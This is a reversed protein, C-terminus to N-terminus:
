ARAPAVKAAPSKEYEHFKMSVVRSIGREPMTIGYLSQGAAITQRNHTVVVFQSQDVFRRLVEVFRGINSEDLPADLEDLLCFPSPKIMYIAFLLAVATLTREGGSLLSINQLKKGPPRAIIEIGSELVDEEDVLVLRATGGNFLTKFMEQFNTNVGDFTSRFMESTTRNIKRIMDMLQQKSNVLDQEQSTLFAHREELEKFEEIAVLNVPGMGELRTRLEEVMTEATDLSPEGEKWEPPPVRELEELSAHYESTLRDAQNQRRLKEEALRLDLGSKAERLEELGTRRASLLSELKELEEGQKEKNKKLRTVADTQERVAEEMEAIRSQSDEIEATLRQIGEAYSHLGESRGGLTDELEAVRAIAATHQTEVSRLAQTLEATRVRHETVESQIESHSAELAHLEDTRSRIGDLIRERRERTEIARAQLEKKQEEGTGDANELSDLEWSVTDLRDRAERAEGGIVQGEGQKQALGTRCEDLRSRASDRAAAAEGHRAAAEDVRAQEGALRRDLDALSHRAESLMERRLPSIHGPADAGFALRGDGRVVHGARTVYVADPMVPSPVDDLADVVYVSELLSTLVPAVTDDCSVHQRLSGPGLTARADQGDGAAPLIGAGRSDGAEAPPVLLRVPGPQKEALRRLAEVADDWGAVLVADLWAGLVAELARAYGDEVEIREGLLGLIRSRNVDLPNTESLLLRAAESVSGEEEDTHDLIELRAATAARLSRLEALSAQAERLADSRERLLAEAAAAAESAEAVAQERRRLDEAMETEREAFDSAVRALQGKEAALRERRLVATRAEAEMGILQNQLKSSLSEMEVSEVRLDQIERRMAETSERSHELEGNRAHLTEEAEAHQARAREVDEVIREIEARKDELQRNTQEMERSTRESWGRYEEIRQRDTEILERTRDLRSQAHVAAELGTGIQHETEVLSKRLVGNGKELEDVEQHAEQLRRTMGAINKELSGVDDNMSAIRRMSCYIDLARLEEHLAKYRRAKGAQRQVSGIQRKVERIVDSLRLLNAETHELKRIAEKRDSKFKTIGSAEEFVTRRDEPRSSLIQDIRGQEMISYATTGIGTDMFLRQIDKLRCPTKNMFYQGEGSRFVRRTITVEHYETGLANECDSFTISVEAMGLAKRADTGDFICDEMRNGRLAKASQEGLVWRIADAINSKGCGNPGVVCTMGPEFHFSTRDAFSKFGTMDLSKLYM